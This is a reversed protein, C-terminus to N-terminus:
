DSYGVSESSLSEYKCCGCVAFDEFPSPYRVRRVKRVNKRVDVGPVVEGSRWWVHYYIISGPGVGAMTLLSVNVVSSTAYLSVCQHAAPYEFGICARRVQDPYRTYQELVRNQPTTSVTNEAIPDLIAVSLPGLIADGEHVLPGWVRVSRLRIYLPATNLALQTQIANRLELLTFTSSVNEIRVILEYWPRSCFIPPM